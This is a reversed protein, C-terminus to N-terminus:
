ERACFFELEDVTFACLLACANSCVLLDLVFDGWYLTRPVHLALHSVLCLPSWHLARVGFYARAYNLNAALDLNFVVMMIIPAIILPIKDVEEAKPEGSAPKESTTADAVKKSSRTEVM